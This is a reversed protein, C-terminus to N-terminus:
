PAITARYQAYEEIESTQQRAIRTALTRVRPDAAHVAAYDAMEIGGRHHVTMLDLFMLDLDRGTAEALATLQDESAMGTMRSAAMPMGMWAMAPRDPDYDPRVADHDELYAAMRGLESRQFVLVDQAFGRITPDTTRNYVTLAMTVAQDHHDSMDVLFGVDTANSPTKEQRVGIAYGVAGALFSFAVVVVAARVLWGRGPRDDVAREAEGPEDPDDPPTPPASATTATVARRYRGDPVLFQRKVSEM